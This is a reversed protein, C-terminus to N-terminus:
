IWRRVVARYSRYSDGFKSELYREEPKIATVCLLSGSPVVVVATVVSNLLLAVGLYLLTMSLYVPNRRIRFVGDTVISTTSKRVDFATRATVWERSALVVLVISCAVLGSGLWLQFSTPFSVGPLLTRLAAGTVFASLLILPPLVKVDARDEM